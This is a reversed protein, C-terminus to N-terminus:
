QEVQPEITVNVPASVEVVEDTYAINLGGSEYGSLDYRVGTIWAAAAITGTWRGRAKHTATGAVQETASWTSDSAQFWKGVNAGSKAQLTLSVTGSTIAEGDAKAIMDVSVINAAGATFSQM